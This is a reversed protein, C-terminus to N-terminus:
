PKKTVFAGIIIGDDSIEIRWDSRGNQHKVEYLDWGNDAVGDFEISQIAGLAKTGSHLGFWQEKTAKAMGESMISYDPSESGLTAILKRLADESGPTPQQSKIKGALTNNIKEAEFAKIRPANMNAGHQHLVLATVLGHGNVIFSLQADVVKVFFKTASEPYIEIAQQGTLQSLLQDGTRSITMVATDSLKYFGTFREMESAPLSIEKHSVNSTSAANATPTANPPSVQAAVAVLGISVLGLAIASLGWLKAPKTIMIKIRKELFSQSESMGAVAGIYRSQRQAVAILTEGYNTVSQGKSLVRADCDVEIAGRLRHLQWWLPINWPMFVLLCIAITLLLPDGVDLHSQEHDLIAQQQTTPLDIVWQPIVIQPNILGVVAPGIDDTMLVPTNLLTSKNWRRKRWLLHAGSFTLAALLFTSLSLWLQSIIADFNHHESPLFGSESVWLFPSLYSSTAERLVIVKQASQSNFINPLAVSVSAIVTPILLSAIIAAIWYWRTNKARLQARREAALAASGLLLSVSIVYIIWVLM